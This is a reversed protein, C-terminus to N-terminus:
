PKRTTTASAWNGPKVGEGGIATLAHPRLLRQDGKQEDASRGIARKVTALLEATTPTDMRM